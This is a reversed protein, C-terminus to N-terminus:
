TYQCREFCQKDRTNDGNAASDTVVTLVMALLRDSMDANNAASDTGRTAAM